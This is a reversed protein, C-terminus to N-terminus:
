PQSNQGSAVGAPVAVARSARNTAQSLYNRTGPAVASFNRLLQLGHSGPENLPMTLVRSIQNALDPDNLKSFINISEKLRSLGRLHNGHAFDIAANAASEMAKNHPDLDEGLREATRSGGLVDTGTRFMRDEAVVADLFKQYGADSEFFPRVRSQLAPNRALTRAANTGIDKGAIMERIATALGMRAFEKDNPNLTKFTAANEEASASPRLAGRGFEVAEISQSPGSYSSRAQKYFGGEPRTSNPGTRATIDAEDLARVFDSKLGSLIRVNDREGTRQAAGIMDDFSRKVYDLTRLNLGAAVGGKPVVDGAERIQEAIDPDAHGMLSMDNQMKIRAARLAAVGAPTQLIKDILPSAIARNAEFAKEYLPAAANARSQQMAVITDHASGRAVHTGVDGELRQGQAATRDGIFDRVVQGSAGPQRAVRGALANVPQSGVDMLTLPKGPTRAALNLMDQATPGGGEVGQTLRRMIEHDAANFIANPGRLESIMRVLPAVTASGARIIANAGARFVPPIFTGAVLGAAIQKTKDTWYDGGSIPNLGSIVAAPAGNTAANRAVWRVLKPVIAEARPALRAATGLRGFAGMPVYNIPSAINGAIRTYDTGTQGGAARSKEYRADDSIIDQDIPKTLNTNVFASVPNEQGATYSRALASAGHAALQATGIIPDAIGKGLRDMFSAPPTPIGFVQARRGSDTERSVNPQPYPKFTFAVPAAGERMGTLSKIPKGSGFGQVVVPIETLGADIAAQARHRGDQDTVRAHGDKDVVVELGPVDHVEDGRALSAQLEKGKKDTKGGPLLDPSLALYQQPTMMVTQSGPRNLANRLAKDSFRFNQSGVVPDNGWDGGPVAQPTVVPDNGWAGSM